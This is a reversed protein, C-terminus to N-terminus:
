AEPIFKLSCRCNPHAPPADDGSAFAEELAIAEGTNANCIECAGPDAWWEKLLGGAARATDLMGQHLARSVENLAISAARSEAAKGAWDQFLGGAVQQLEARSAGDKLAARIVSEVRAATTQDLQQFLEKARPAVSGVAAAPSMGVRAALDAGADYARQLVAELQKTIREARAPSLAAALIWGVENETPARQELVRSLAAWQWRFRRRLLVALALILPDVLRAKRKTLLHEALALATERVDEVVAANM